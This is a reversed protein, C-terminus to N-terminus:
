LIEQCMKLMQIWGVTSLVLAFISLTLTAKCDSPEYAASEGGGRGVCVGGVGDRSFINAVRPIISGVKITLVVDGWEAAYNGLYIRVAYVTVMLVLFSYILMHYIHQSNLQLVRVCVSFLFKSEVIFLLENMLIKNRM